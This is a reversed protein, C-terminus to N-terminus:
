YKNSIDNKSMSSETPGIKNLTVYMVTAATFTAHSAM